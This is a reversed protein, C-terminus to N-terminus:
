HKVVSRGSAARVAQQGHAANSSSQGFVFVMRRKFFDMSFSRDPYTVSMGSSLSSMHRANGTVQRRRTPKVGKRGSTSGGM